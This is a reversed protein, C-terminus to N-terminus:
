LHSLDQRPSRKGLEGCNKRNNDDAKTRARKVSKSVSAYVKFKEYLIFAYNTMYEEGEVAHWFFLRIGPGKEVFQAHQLIDKFAEHAAEDSVHYSEIETDDEIYNGIECLHIGRVWSLVLQELADAPVQVGTRSGKDFNERFSPLIGPANKDPFTKIHRLLATRKNFRHMFDKASNAKKPDIARFVSDIITKEGENEPNLCLAIRVRLTEEIASKKGNCERCSPAKWKEVPPTDSPYWSRAIVHDVTIEKKPFEKLCYVCRNEFKRGM